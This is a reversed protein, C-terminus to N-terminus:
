KLNVVEKRITNIDNQLTEIYDEVEYFNFTETDCSDEYDINHYDIIFTAPFNPLNDESYKGNIYVYSDIGSRNTELARTVELFEEKTKFTKLYTEHESETSNLNIRNSTISNYAEYYRKEREKRKLEAEHRECDWRSDFTIGDDSVYKAGIEIAQQIIEGDIKKM